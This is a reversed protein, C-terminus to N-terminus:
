REDVTERDVHSGRDLVVRLGLALEHPLCPKPFFAAFGDRMVREQLSRLVYGSTAVMPVGRARPHHKLNELLRWGDHDPMPLDVVIIDPPIESARRCAEGVDETAVVDFGGFSL